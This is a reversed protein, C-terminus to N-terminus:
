VQEGGLSLVGVQKLSYSIYFHIGHKCQYPKHSGILLVLFRSPSPSAVTTRDWETAADTVHFEGVAGSTM